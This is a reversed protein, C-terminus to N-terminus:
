NCCEFLKLLTQAKEKESFVFCFFLFAVCVLLFLM